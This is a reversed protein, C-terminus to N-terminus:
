LACGLLNILPHKYVMGPSHTCDVDCVVLAPWAPKAAVCVCLAPNCNRQMCVPQQQQDHCQLTSLVFGSPLRGLKPYPLGNREMCRVGYTNLTAFVFRSTDKLGQLHEIDREFQSLEKDAQEQVSQVTDPCHEAYHLVRKWVRVTSNAQEVHKTTM